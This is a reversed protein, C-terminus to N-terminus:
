TQQKTKEDRAHLGLTKSDEGSFRLAPCKYYFAGNRPACDQFCIPSPTSALPQSM